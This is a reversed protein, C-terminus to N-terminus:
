RPAPSDPRRAKWRRIQLTTRWVSMVAAAMSLGKLGTRLAEPGGLGETFVSACFLLIALAAFGMAIRDRRPGRAEHLDTM